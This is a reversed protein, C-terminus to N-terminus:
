PGHKLRRKFAGDRIVWVAANFMERGNAVGPGTSQSCGSIRVRQRRTSMARSMRDINALTTFDKGAIREITLRKNRAESRLSNVTMSGDPFAIAAAVELRLPTDPGIQDRDPTHM